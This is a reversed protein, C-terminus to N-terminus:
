QVVRVHAQTLNLKRMPNLLRGDKHADIIEYVIRDLKRKNNIFRKNNTTPIWPFLTMLSAFSQTHRNNGRLLAAIDGAHHDFNEGFLTRCVIQFTIQSMEQDLWMVDNPPIRQWKEILQQTVSNIIDDFRNVNSNAFVPQVLRRQKAWSEGDNTVLGSGFIQGMVRYDITNKTYDPWAKTLIQRVYEPDRVAYIPKFGRIRIIDGYRNHLNLMFEARDIKPGESWVEYWPPGPPLPTNQETKNWM